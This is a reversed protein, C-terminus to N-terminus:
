RLIEGQWIKKWLKAFGVFDPHRKDTYKAEKRFTTIEIEKLKPNESETLVTVTLFRNEYFSKPFIRMIEEPKREDDCGL